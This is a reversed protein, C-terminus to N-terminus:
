EANQVMERLKEVEEKLAIAQSSIDFDGSKSGITNAERNMEQLIFNLRRGVAGKSKLTTAYQEIHSQFRICEENVDTREAFVTIEEELRGANPAPGDLLEEIRTRLKKAYVEVAKSTKKEVKKVKSSLVKLSKQMDAAMFQGEKARMALFPKLASAITKSLATGVLKLDLDAREPVVIDPIALLDSVSLDGALKLEKGLQQLQRHYSRALNKNIHARNSGNDPEAFNVYLTVKGRDLKAALQERIQPELASLPKPLRISLELFRNNVGSIEVTFRGLRSDLQARGFGTMSNM